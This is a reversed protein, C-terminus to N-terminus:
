LCQVALLFNRNPTLPDRGAAAAADADSGLAFPIADTGGTVILPLLFQKTKRRLACRLKCLYTNRRCGFNRSRHMPPPKRRCGNPHLHQSLLWAAASRVAM